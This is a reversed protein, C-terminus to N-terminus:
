KGDRCKGDAGSVGDRRGRDVAEGSSWRV